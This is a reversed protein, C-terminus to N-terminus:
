YCREYLYKRVAEQRKEGLGARGNILDILANELDLSARLVEQARKAGIGPFTMLTRLQPRPAKPLRIASSSGGVEFWNKCLSLLRAATHRAGASHVLRVGFGQVRMLWNDLAAYPVGSSRSGVTAYGKGDCGIRGEILLTCLSNVGAGRTLQRLQDMIRSEGSKAASTFSHLLDSAEKREVFLSYDNCDNHFAYDIGNKGAAINDAGLTAALGKTIEDPESQAVIARIKM